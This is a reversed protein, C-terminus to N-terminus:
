EWSLFVGFSYPAITDEEEEKDEEAEETIVAVCFCLTPL